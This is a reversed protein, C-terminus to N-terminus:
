EPRLDKSLWGATTRVPPRPCPIVKCGSARRVARTRGATVVVAFAQKLQVAGNVALRDTPNETEISGQHDRAPATPNLHIMAGTATDLELLECAPCRWQLRSKGSEVSHLNRDINEGRAGFPPEGDDAGKM